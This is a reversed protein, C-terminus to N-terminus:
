VALQSQLTVSATNADRAGLGKGIGRGQATVALYIRDGRFLDRSFECPMGSSDYTVRTILLLASKPKVGLLSAETSTATM